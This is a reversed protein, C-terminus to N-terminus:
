RPKRRGTTPSTDRPNKAIFDAMRVHEASDLPGAAYDWIKAIAKPQFAGDPLCVQVDSQEFRKGKVSLVGNQMAIGLELSRAIRTAREILHEADAPPCVEDVAEAFLELWRDFHRANGQPLLHKEMPRGRYRGSMLAVSSWFACMDNRAIIDATIIARRVSDPM